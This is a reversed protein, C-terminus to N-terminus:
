YNMLVTICMKLYLTANRQCFVLKMLSFVHAKKKYEESRISYGCIIIAKSSYELTMKHLKISSNNNIIKWEANVM